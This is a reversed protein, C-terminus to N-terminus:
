GIFSGLPIVCFDFCDNIDYYCVISIGYHLCISIESNGVVMSDATHNIESFLSHLLKLDIFSIGPFFEFQVLVARWDDPGSTRFQYHQHDPLLVSLYNRM